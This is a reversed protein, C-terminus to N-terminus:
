DDAAARRLEAKLRDLEDNLKDDQNLAVMAVATLQGAVKHRLEPMSVEDSEPIQAIARALAIAEPREELAPADKAAALKILKVLAHLITAYRPPIINAGRAMLVISDANLEARDWFEETFGGGDYDLTDQLYRDISSRLNGFITFFSSITVDMLTGRQGFHLNRIIGRTHDSYSSMDFLGSPVAKNPDTRELYDVISQAEAAKIQRTGKVMRNVASTDIGLARALAAQSRGYRTLERKLNSPTLLSMDIM